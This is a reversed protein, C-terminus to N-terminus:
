PTPKPSAKRLNWAKALNELSDRMDHMWPSTHQGRMFGAIYEAAPHHIRQLEAIVLERDYEVRRFDLRYGSQDAHLIVYSARLDPPFPNSVSGPNIIRVKNAHVNMVLHHHGVCILDASSNAVLSELEADSASPLIGSGDDCGPSAHVALLRTSDPLVIREQLPLAKLWNFWGGTTIAGQTWAFSAVVEAFKPLIEPNSIGDELTPTPREGTVLYRDTNGRIVHGNPLAAIRELVGVPDHGIAALDGLILYEDVGSQRRIDDLVADLAITNGHIDSLIAIRM